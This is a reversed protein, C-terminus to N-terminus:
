SLLLPKFPSQFPRQSSKLHLTGFASYFTSELLRKLAAKSRPDQYKSILDDVDNPGVFPGFFPVLLHAFSRALSLKSPTKVGQDDM